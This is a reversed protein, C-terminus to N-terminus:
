LCLLVTQYWNQLKLCKRFASFLSSGLSSLKVLEHTSNEIPRDHLGTHSQTVIPVISVRPPCLIDPSVGSCKQPCGPSFQFADYVDPGWPTPEVTLRWRLGKVPPKAYPIGLYAQMGQTLFLGRVPGYLTQVVPPHLDTPEGKELSNGYVKLCLLLFFSISSTSQNSSMIRSFCLQIDLNGKQNTQQSTKDKSTFTSTRFMYSARTRHKAHSLPQQSYDYLYVYKRCLLVKM